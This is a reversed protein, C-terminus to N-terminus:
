PTCLRGLAAAVIGCALALLGICAAGFPWTRQRRHEARENDLRHMTDFLAQELEERNLQSFPVGRYTAPEKKM